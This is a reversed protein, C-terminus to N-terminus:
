PENKEKYKILALRLERIVSDMQQIQQKLSWYCNCLIRIKENLEEEIGSKM